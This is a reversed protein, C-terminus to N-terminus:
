LPEFFLSIIYLRVWEHGQWTIRGKQIPTGLSALQLEAQQLNKQAEELATVLRAIESLDPWQVTVWEARTSPQFRFRGDAAGSMDLGIPDFRVGQLLLLNTRIAELKEEACAIIQKAETRRRMATLTSTGIEEDTM